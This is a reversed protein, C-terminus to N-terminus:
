PTHSHKVRYGEDCGVVAPARFELYNLLRFKNVDYNNAKTLSHNNLANM